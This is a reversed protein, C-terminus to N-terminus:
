TKSRSIWMEIFLCKWCIKPGFYLRRIKLPPPSSNWTLPPSCSQLSCNTCFAFALRPIVSWHWPLPPCSPPKLWLFPSPPSSPPPVLRILYPPLAMLLSSNVLVSQLTISISQLTQLCAINSSALIRRMAEEIQHMPTTPLL